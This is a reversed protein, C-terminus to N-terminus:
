NTLLKIYILIQVMLIQTLDITGGKVGVILELIMLNAITGYPSPFYAGM